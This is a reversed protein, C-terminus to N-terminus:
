KQLQWDKALFTILFHGNIFLSAFLARIQHHALWEITIAQL